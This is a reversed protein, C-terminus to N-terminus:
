RGLRRGGGPEMGARLGQPRNALPHPTLAGVQVMVHARHPALGNAKRQAIRAVVRGQGLRGKLHEESRALIHNKVGVGQGGQLPEGGAIGQHRHAIAVGVDLPHAEAVQKARGEAGAPGTDGLWVRADEVHGGSRHGHGGFFHKM